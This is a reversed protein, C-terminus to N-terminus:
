TGQHVRYSLHHNFTAKQLQRLKLWCGDKYVNRGAITTYLLQHHNWYGECVRNKVMVESFFFQSVRIPGPILFGSKQAM